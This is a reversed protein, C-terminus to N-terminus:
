AVSAERKGLVRWQYIGWIGFGVLTWLIQRLRKLLSVAIGLVPDYGLLRVFLGLGAEQAGLNAPIFFSGLRVLQLLSELMIGQAISIPVGLARFMLWMELGGVTWGIFHYFISIYFRKKEGAYFVGIEYIDLNKKQWLIFLGCVLAFVLVSLGLGRIWDWELNLSFLAVGLGIVVFLLESVMLATRAVVVSAASEKKSIGFLESAMFVKLPEGGVDLIPTVNNVAEGALRVFYLKPIKVKAKSSNPFVAKWGLMDWICMFAYFLFIWYNSFSIASLTVKLKQFDTSLIVGGFLAIGALFLFIQIYRKLRM